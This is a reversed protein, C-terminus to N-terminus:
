TMYTQMAQKAVQDEDVTAALAVGDESDGATDSL